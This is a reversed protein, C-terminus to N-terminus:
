RRPFVKVGTVMARVLNVRSFWSEFAVGALHGVALMLVTNAAIEHLDEVWQLGFFTLSGMMLGTAAIVALTAWLAYVMLAGLPNHSVHPRARRAAIERVHARVAGVSPPFASFRAPRTGIVGWLLRVSLLAILGYGILLHPKGEADILLGNAVVAAAVLWHCARVLPDWVRVARGQVPAAVDGVFSTADAM